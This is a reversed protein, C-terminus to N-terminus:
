YARNRSGFHCKTGCVNEIFIYFLFIRFHGVVKQLFNDLRTVSTDKRCVVAVVRGRVSTNHLSIKNQSGKKGKNRAFCCVPSSILGNNKKAFHCLIRTRM